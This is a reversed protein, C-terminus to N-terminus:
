FTCCLVACRLDTRNRGLWWSMNFNLAHPLTLDFLHVEVGSM